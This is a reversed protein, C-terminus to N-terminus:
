EVLTPHFNTFMSYVFFIHNAINHMGNPISDLIHYNKIRVIAREVHVRVSAIRRTKVRDSESLQGSEDLNPPVNLSVGKADFLDSINFGRDAM